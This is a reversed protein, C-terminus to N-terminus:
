GPLLFTFSIYIIVSYKGLGARLIEIGGAQRATGPSPGM